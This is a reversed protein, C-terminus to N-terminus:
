PLKAGGSCAVLTCRVGGSGECCPSQGFKDVLYANWRWRLPTEGGALNPEGRHPVIGVPRHMQRVIRGSSVATHLNM